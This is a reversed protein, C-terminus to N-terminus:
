AASPRRERRRVERAARPTESVRTAREQAALMAALRRLTPGDEVTAPLGQAARSGAVLAALAEREPTM